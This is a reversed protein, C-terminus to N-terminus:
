NQICYTSYEDYRGTMTTFWNLANSHLLIYNGEFFRELEPHWEQYLEIGKSTVKGICYASGDFMDFVDKLYHRSYVWRHNYEFQCAMIRHEDFLNKAGRLVEMDHGETDCKLFHIINTENNSCYSSVTTKEIMIRRQGRNMADPHLSNTGSTEGSIYMETIGEESSLAKPVLHVVNQLNHKHVREKLVEFTSPIPEFSHIELRDEIKLRSAEQLFSCTWDGINAGVDFTVLKEQVSAFRALLQRQLTEEGNLSADNTSDARAKLYLSRGLRWMTRRRLLVNLINIVITKM